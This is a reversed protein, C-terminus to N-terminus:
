FPGNGPDFGEPIEEYGDGSEGDLRIPEQKARPKKPKAPKKRKKKPVPGSEVDFTALAVDIDDQPVDKATIRRLKADYERRKTEDSLTTFAEQLAQFEAEATARKNVDPHLALALRRYAGKIQDETADRAVGLTDYYTQDPM